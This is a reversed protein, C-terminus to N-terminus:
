NRPGRGVARESARAGIMMMSTDWRKMRMMHNNERTRSEVPSHASTDRYLSIDAAFAVFSASLPHSSLEPSLTVQVLPRLRGPVLNVAHQPFGLNQQFSSSAVLAKSCVRKHRAFAFINLGTARQDDQRATSEM